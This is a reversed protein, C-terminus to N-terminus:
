RNPSKRKLWLVSFLTVIPIALVLGISGVLTRVIEASIYEVNILENFDRSSNVFLLLMPFSAGAYVLVLTNIMSSIHDKGVSIARSYLEKFSMKKNVDDLQFVVSAQSVTVDDLVGLLSVIMGALFLGRLNVDGVEGLQIFISEESDMGNLYTLEMFYKSLIGAIILAFITSIIAITTKTSFGHSTYFTVPIIVLSALIVVLVPDYGSIINPLIVKFIMAFSIAMAFLSLIGYKKAIAITVIIFLVFLILIGQSRNYEAIFLNEGNEYVIVKDGVKYKVFAKSVGYRYNEFEKGNELRVTVKEEMVKIGNEEYEKAEIVEIVEGKYKTIAETDETNAFIPTNFAVSVGFIIILVFLIKNIYVKM